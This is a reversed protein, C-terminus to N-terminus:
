VVQDVLRVDTARPGKPGRGIEYELTQGELLDEFGVGTVDSM